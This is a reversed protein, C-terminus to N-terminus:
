KWSAFSGYEFDSQKFGKVFHGDDPEFLASKSPAKQKLEFYLSRSLRELVLLDRPHILTMQRCLGRSKETLYRKPAQVAYHGEIVERRVRQVLRESNEDIDRYEIPDFVLQKRIQPKTRKKWEDRLLKLEFVKKIDEQLFQFKPTQLAARM